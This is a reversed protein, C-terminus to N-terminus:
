NRQNIQHNLKATAVAVSDVFWAFSVMLVCHYGFNSHSPHIGVQNATTELVRLLPPDRTKLSLSFHGLNAVADVLSDLVVV